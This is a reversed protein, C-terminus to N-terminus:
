STPPRTCGVVSTVPAPSRDGATVSVLVFGALMEFLQQPRLARGARAAARYIARGLKLAFASTGADVFALVAAFREEHRDAREHLAAMDLDVNPEGGHVQHGGALFPHAGVLHATHKAKGIFASPEKAMAETLGHADRQGSSLGSEYV